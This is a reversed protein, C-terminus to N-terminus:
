IDINLVHVYFASYVENFANLEMCNEYIRRLYNQDLEFTGERLMKLKTEMVISMAHFFVHLNEACAWEIQDLEIDWLYVKQDDLNYTYLLNYDMHTAFHILNKPMDAVVHTVSFGSYNYTQPFDFGKLFYALLDRNENKGHNDLPIILRVDSFNREKEKLYENYVEVFRDVENM